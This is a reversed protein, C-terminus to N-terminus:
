DSFGQSLDVWSLAPESIASLLGQVWARRQTGEQDPASLVIAM